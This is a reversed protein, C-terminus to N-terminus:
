LNMFYTVLLIVSLYLNYYINFVLYKSAKLDYSKSEYYLFLTSLFCVIITCFSLFLNNIIFLSIMFFINFIYNTFLYKNYDITDK